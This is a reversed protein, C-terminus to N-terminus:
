AWYAIGVSQCWSIWSHIAWVSACHSGGKLLFVLIQLLLDEDEDGKLTKKETSLEQFNDTLCVWKTLWELNLQHRLLVVHKICVFFAVSFISCTGSSNYTYVCKLFNFYGEIIYIKAISWSCFHLLCICCGMVSSQVWTWLHGQKREPSSRRRLIFVACSPFLELYM